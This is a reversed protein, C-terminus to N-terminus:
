SIPRQFINNLIHNFENIFPTLKTKIISDYFYEVLSNFNETRKSQFLINVYLKYINEKKYYEQLLDYLVSLQNIYEYITKSNNICIFYEHNNYIEIMEKNNKYIENNIAKKDNIINVNVNRFSEVFLNKIYKYMVEVSVIYRYRHKHCLRDNYKSVKGCKMNKKSGWKFVHCCKNHNRYRYTYNNTIIKILSDM